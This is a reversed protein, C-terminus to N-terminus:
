GIENLPVGHVAAAIRRATERPTQVRMDIYLIDRMLAPLEVDELLVPIVPPGGGSSVRKGMFFDLEHRAWESRLSAKSAFFVLASAHELGRQIENVLSDGAVLEQQDVWVRVRFKRLQTAVSQVTPMDSHAYSFFVWPREREPSRSLFQILGGWINTLRIALSPHRGQLDGIAGRVASLILAERHGDEIAATVISEIEVLFASRREVAEQQRHREAEVLEVTEHLDSAVAQALDKPAQFSAVTHRENLVARFRELARLKDPDSEFDKPLVPVSPDRMYVLSPKDLRYGEQYEAESFSISKGPVLSGYKHGVIVVLVNSKAVEALCADIPRDPKAGFFEMSEHQLKLERIAALVAQREDVLDTYTSCLFVKM